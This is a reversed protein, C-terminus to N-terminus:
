TLSLRRTPSPSPTMRRPSCPTFNTASRGNEAITMNIDQAFSAGAFCLMAGGALLATMIKRM